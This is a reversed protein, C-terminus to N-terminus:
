IVEAMIGGRIMSRDTSKVDFFMQYSITPRVRVAVFKGKDISLLDDLKTFVSVKYVNPLDMLNQHGDPKDVSDRSKEVGIDYSSNILNDTSACVYGKDETKIVVLLLQESSVAEEHFEKLQGRTIELSNDSSPQVNVFALIIPDVNPKSIEIRDEGAEEVKFGRDEATRTIERIM